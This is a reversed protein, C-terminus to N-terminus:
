VNFGWTLNGTDGNNLVTTSSLITAFGMIGASIATFAAIKNISQANATATWATTQTFSAVGNVVTPGVFGGYTVAKRALGNLTLEGTLATDTKVVATLDASLGVFAFPLAGALGCLQAIANAGADTRANTVYIAPEVTGDARSVQWTITNPVFLRTPEQIIM